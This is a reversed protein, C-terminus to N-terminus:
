QGPLTRSSRLTISRAVTSLRRHDQATPKFNPDAPREISADAVMRESGRMISLLKADLGYVDDRVQLQGADDVILTKTDEDITVRM